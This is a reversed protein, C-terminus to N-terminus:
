YTGGDIISDPILYGANERSTKEAALDTKLKHIDTTHSQTITKIENIAGQVVGINTQNNTVQGVLKAYEAGHESIYQLAEAFTDVTGNDTLQTAFKNIADKVIKKVSGEVTDAANLTDIATKRTQAEDDIRKGLANDATERTAAEDNIRKELGKQEEDKAAIIAEAADANQRILTPIDANDDYDPIIFGNKTEETM